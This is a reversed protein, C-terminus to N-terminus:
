EGFDNLSQCSFTNIISTKSYQSGSCDLPRFPFWLMNSLNNLGISFSSTILSKSFSYSIYIFCQSMTLVNFSCCRKIISPQIINLFTNLYKDDWQYFMPKWNYKTDERSAWNNHFRIFYSTFLYMNLEPYRLFLYGGIRAFLYFCGSRYDNGGAARRIYRGKIGFPEKVAQSFPITYPIIREVPLRHIDRESM